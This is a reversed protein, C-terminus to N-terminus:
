GVCITAMVKISSYTVCPTCDVDHESKQNRSSAEPSDYVRHVVGV